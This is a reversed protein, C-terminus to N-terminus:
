YIVKCNKRMGNRKRQLPQVRVSTSTAKIVDTADEEAGVAPVDVFVLFHSKEDTYLEGVDVSTAWGDGDVISTAAPTSLGSHPCTISIHAEQVTISLLGGICQAFADQIIAQNEIFSFTEGTEEANTHMMAADHNTGFGSTHVPLCRDGSHKFFPPVLVSYNKSYGGNLNDVSLLIVSAIDNRYRHGDFVKTAEVLGKLINTYGYAHLSQSEVTSKASAETAITLANVYLLVIFKERPTSRAIAPLECHTKVFLVM